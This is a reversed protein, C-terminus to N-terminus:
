YGTSSNRTHNPHDDDQENDSALRRESIAVKLGHVVVLGSARILGYDAV